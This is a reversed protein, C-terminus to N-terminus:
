KILLMRQIMTQGDARLRAFYVGSVVRQDSRDLGRWPIEYRGTDLYGNELDKVLRGRLDYVSLRVHGSNKLMFSITAKPNFPNPYPRLLETRMIDVEEQTSSIPHDTYTELQYVADMYEEVVGVDAAYWRVDEGTKLGVAEGLLNFRGDFLISKPPPPDGVGFSDFAGAPVTLLTNELVQYDFDMVLHPLTDPLAYLQVDSNTWTKGLSLPSDVATIPPQYLYGFPGRSWGWLLLDGDPGTSWYNVLTPNANSIQYAIPYVMTGFMPVMEGVVRLEQSGDDLRYSWFNGPALPQYDQATVPASLMVVLVFLILFKM